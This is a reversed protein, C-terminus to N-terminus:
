PGVYKYTGKLYKMLKNSNIVAKKSKRMYLEYIMSKGRKNENQM